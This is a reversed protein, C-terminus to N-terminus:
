KTAKKTLNNKRRTPRPGFRNNLRPYLQTGGLCDHGRSALRTFLQDCGPCPFRERRISVGALEEQEDRPQPFWYYERRKIWSTNFRQYETIKM